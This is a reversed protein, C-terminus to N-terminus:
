KCGAPAKSPRVLNGFLKNLLLPIFKMMPEAASQLILRDIANSLISDPSTSHPVGSIRDLDASAPRGSM